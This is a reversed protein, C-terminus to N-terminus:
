AFWGNWLKSGSKNEKPSIQGRAIGIGLRDIIAGDKIAAISGLELDNCIIHRILGDNSACGSTGPRNDHSGGVMNPIPLMTVGDRSWVEEAQSLVGDLM